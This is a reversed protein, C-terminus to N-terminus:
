HKHGKTLTFVTLGTNPTGQPTPTPTFV